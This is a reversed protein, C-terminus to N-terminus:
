QDSNWAPSATKGKDVFDEKQGGQTTAQNGLMNNGGMPQQQGQQSFGDMKALKTTHM